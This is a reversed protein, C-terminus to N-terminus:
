EGHAVSCQDLYYLTELQHVQGLGNFQTKIIQCNKTLDTNYIPLKNELAGKILRLTVGHTVILINQDDPLKTMEKLFTLVRDAIMSYSEGNPPTWHWRNHVDNEFHPSSQAKEYSQGTFIGLDQEVILESPDLPINYAEVFYSATQLARQLTSSYIAHIEYNKRLMEATRIAEQHGIKSIPTPLRSAYQQTANAESEAHRLFFLQPM